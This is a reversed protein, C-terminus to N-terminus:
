GQQSSDADKGVGHMKLFTEWESESLSGDNDTDLANFSWRLRESHYASYEEYSVMGDNNGDMESLNAGFMSHGHHGANATLAAGILLAIASFIALAPIVLAIKM